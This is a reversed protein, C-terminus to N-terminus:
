RSQVLGMLSAYIRENADPCAFGERIRTGMEGRAAPDDILKCVQETLAGTSLTHEEVCIGAGEKVLAMANKLQHQEAVYPSPILVAAKGTLALESVSMAGARSIVLDAAAMRIPMDYIYDVLTMRDCGGASTKDWDARIRDYDRKGAAHLLKVRPDRVLEATLKVVADNVYEAGLSGGFSLVFIDTPTLGLQRRAEERSVTAFGPMMPNGVRIIRSNKGAGGLRDMTATFNVMVLDAKDKLKQVAKGPLANSEHLATPIGKRIGMRCTPWCAFGGTGVILDPKFEDILRGAEGKSKVMLFPLKLNSPSWLPRALGQIHVTHLPYCARPVLDNAKDRPLASAVFAIEADPQKEKITAAIALAPNVHGATGGGTMLIRM